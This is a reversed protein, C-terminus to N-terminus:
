AKIIITKRYTATSVLYKIREDIGTKRLMIKVAKDDVEVGLYRIGLYELLDRLDEEDLGKAKVDINCPGIRCMACYRGHSYINAECAARFVKFGFEEALRRIKDKLDSSRVEIQGSGKLPEALRKEIEKRAVGSKELRWLISETVRLSGLVVSDIGKDASATLIKEAERDTVGPIIPRIFLSVKLGKELARGASEIRKLPDPARPELRRNSLTVVTILVSANPDGSLVGSIIDDTLIAKTSLQTPLNLWRWIDRMYEIARHVTEPLFPETVSGYAALTREPVIYPNQTLAYVIEEPKLPYPKPVATFGMDYIYCYACLYSCGVGTHITMGCPRPKRRSHHDNLATRKSDVSLIDELNAAIKRKKELLDVLHTLAIKKEM